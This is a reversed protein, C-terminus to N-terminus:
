SRGGREFARSSARGTSAARLAGARRDHSAYEGAAPATAAMTTARTTTDLPSLEGVVFEEEDSGRGAPMAPVAGGVACAFDAAGGAASERPATVRRLDRGGGGPALDLAARLQLEGGRAGVHLRDGVVHDGCGLAEAPDDAGGLDRGRVGLRRRHEGPADRGPPEVIGHGCQTLQRVDADSDCPEVSM